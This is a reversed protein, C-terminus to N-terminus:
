CVNNEGIKKKSYHTKYIKQTGMKNEKQATDAM